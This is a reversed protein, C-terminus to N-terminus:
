PRERFMRRCVRAHARANENQRNQNEADEDSKDQATGPRHALGGTLKLGLGSLIQNLMFFFDAM